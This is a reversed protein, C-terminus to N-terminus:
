PAAKSKGPATRGDRMAQEYAQGINKNEWEDIKERWIWVYRDSYSLAGFVATQYDDPQFYNKAPDNPFWGLKGSNNDTWLGFGVRMTKDFAAKDKFLEKTALVKARGREFQDLRKFGYSLEFGDIIESEPNAERCMGEIFPALLGYDKRGEKMQAATMSAGFLILVKANGFENNIAGMFQEGRLRAQTTYEEENHAKRRAEPWASYTWVHADSYEEPDLELGVCGGQKAVRALMRANHLITDFAPDFLDVDGPMAELQIFNDTFKEFKTAKLDEIAHELQEPTFREKGWMRNGLTSSKLKPEREESVGIVIGDFPHKEMEHVNQRVYATNPWDAGYSIIKKDKSSPEFASADTAVCLLALLRLAVERKGTHRPSPPPSPRSANKSFAATHQDFV